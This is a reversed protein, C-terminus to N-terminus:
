GNPQSDIFAELEGILQELRERESPELKHKHLETQRRLREIEARATRQQFGIVSSNDM